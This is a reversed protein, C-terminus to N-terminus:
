SWREWGVTVSIAVRCGSQWKKTGRPFLFHNAVHPMCFQVSSSQHSSISKVSVGVERVDETAPLDECRVLAVDVASLLVVAWGDAFMIAARIEQRGQWCMEERLRVSRAAVRQAEHATVEFGEFEDELM